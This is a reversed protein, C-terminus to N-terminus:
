LGLVSDIGKNYSFSFSMFEPVAGKRLQGRQAATRFLQVEPLTWPCNM